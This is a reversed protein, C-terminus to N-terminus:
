LEQIKEWVKEAPLFTDWDLYLIKVHKSLESMLNEYQEHLKNLYQIDIKEECIRSEDHLYREHIRKYCVNPSTRLYVIIDPYKLDKKMNAALANYTVYDRNDMKGLEFLCKVFANDEYISRDQICTLNHDKLIEKHLRYRSNLFSVQFQFAYKKPDAYFDNFYPNKKLPEEFLKSGYIVENLKKGLDTKGAGISGSIVIFKNM